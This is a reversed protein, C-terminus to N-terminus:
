QSRLYTNSWIWSISYKSTNQRTRLLFSYLFRQDELFVDQLCILSLFSFLVIPKSIDSNSVPIYKILTDESFSTFDIRNILCYLFIKLIVDIFFINDVIIIKNM